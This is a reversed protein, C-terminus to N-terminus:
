KGICCHDFISGLIEEVDVKGVIKGLHRTALRLDEAALDFNQIEKKQNFEKLYFIVKELHERHRERTILVDDNSVFKNKLRNKIKSVLKDININKKISIKIFDIKNFQDGLSFEGLDIKNIVLISNEDFLNKLFGTFDLSKPEIVVLRLDADEARKLALKIGKKEIENKSERIGATDSIVVPYGDINLYVEIVDRTTGATESVIAAKNYSQIADWLKDKKGSRYLLHGKIMLTNYISVTDTPSLKLVSSYHDRAIEYKESDRAEQGLAKHALVISSIIASSPQSQLLSDEISILLDPNSTAMEQYINTACGWFVLIIFLAVHAQKTNIVKM